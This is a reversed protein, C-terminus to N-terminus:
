PVITRWYKRGEHCVKQKSSFQQHSSFTKWTRVILFVYLLVDDLFREWIKPSNLATQEHAQMYIEATTSFAPKGM